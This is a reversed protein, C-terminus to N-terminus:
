IKKKARAPKKPKASLELRLLRVHLTNKLEHMEKTLNQVVSTLKINAAMAAILPAGLAIIAAWAEGSIHVDTM